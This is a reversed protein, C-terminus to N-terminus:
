VQNRFLKRQVQTKSCIDKKVAYKVIFFDSRDVTKPMVSFCGRVINVLVNNSLKVYMYTSQLNFTINYQQM